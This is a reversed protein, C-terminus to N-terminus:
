GILNSRLLEAFRKLALNLLEDGSLINTTGEWVVDLDRDFTPHFEFCEIVQAPQGYSGKLHFNLRLKCDKVSSMTLAEFKLEMAM